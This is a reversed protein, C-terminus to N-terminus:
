NRFIYKRYVTPIIRGSEVPRRYIIPINTICLCNSTDFASIKAPIQPNVVTTFASFSPAVQRREISLSHLAIWVSASEEWAALAGRCDGSEYLARGLHFYPLYRRFFFSRRVKAKAIPQIQIAERMMEASRTWQGAEAASLGVKYIELFESGYTPPVVLLLLLSALLGSRRTPKM